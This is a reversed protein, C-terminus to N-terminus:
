WQGTRQYERSDAEYRARENEHKWWYEGFADQSLQDQPLWEGTDEARRMDDMCYQCVRGAYQAEIESGHHFDGPRFEEEFLFEKCCQCQHLLDGGATVFSTLTM